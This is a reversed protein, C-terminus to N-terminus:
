EGGGLSLSDMDMDIGEYPLPVVVLSSIIILVAVYAAVYVLEVGMYPDPTSWSSSPTCYSHAAYTRRVEGVGCKQSIWSVSSTKDKSHMFM